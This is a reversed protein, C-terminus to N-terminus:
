YISRLKNLTVFIEIFLYIFTFTTNRCTIYIEYNVQSQLRKRNQFLWNITHIFFYFIRKERPPFKSILMIFSILSNQQVIPKNLSNKLYRVFKLTMKPVNAHNFSCEFDDSVFKITLCFFRFKLPKRKNKFIMNRKLIVSNLM